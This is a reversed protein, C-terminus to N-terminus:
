KLSVHYIKMQIWWVGVEGATWKSNLSAEKENRLSNPCILNPSGWANRAKEPPWPVSPYLTFLTPVQEGLWVLSCCNACLIIPVMHSVHSEADNLLGPNYKFSARLKRATSGESAETARQRHHPPKICLLCAKANWYKIVEDTMKHRKPLWIEEKTPCRDTSDRHWVSQHGLTNSHSRSDTRVERQKHCRRGCVYGRAVLTTIFSPSM